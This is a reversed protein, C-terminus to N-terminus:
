GSFAPTIVVAPTGAPNTPTTPAYDGEVAGADCRGGAVEPRPFERQDLTIGDQGAQCESNAVVDLVPSGVLPARTLTPGGYAGLPALMADAVLADTAAELGCTTETTVNYQSTASNGNLSCDGGAIVSEIVFIDAGSGISANAGGSYMTLVAPAAFTGRLLKRRVNIKRELMEPTQSM